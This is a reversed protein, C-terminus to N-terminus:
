QHAYEEQALIANMINTCATKGHPPCMYKQVFEHREDAIPDEENIVMQIFHEIEDYTKGHYHVKQAYRFARNLNDIVHDGKLLFMVPKDIAIYEAIFSSCDHIMADSHKFLGMYPGNEYQANELEEWEKFYAAVRAEDWVWTLRQWLLPHPKFAFYVKDKYKKALELVINGTELFTGYDCGKMHIDGITHHPAYIIRKRGSNDRWQDPSLEKAELLQDAFPLGTVCFNKGHNWSNIKADEASLENDYFDYLLIRYMPKNLVAPDLIGHFSYFVYMHIMDLNEVYRHRPHYETQYPKLYFVIDAQTQIKIRKESNLIMCPYGKAKCYEEVELHSGSREIAIPIGVIPNFRKHTLMAAFLNETKWTPLDNVLFTVNVVKKRRMVWTILPLRLRYIHERLLDYRWQLGGKIRQKTWKMIRNKACTNILLPLLSSKTRLM